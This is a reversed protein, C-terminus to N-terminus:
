SDAAIGRLWRMVRILSAVFSTVFVHAIPPQSVFHNIIVFHATSLSQNAFHEQAKSQKAKSQKADRQTAKVQFVYFRPRYSLLIVLSFDGFSTHGVEWSSV